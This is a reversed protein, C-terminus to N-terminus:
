FNSYLEHIMVAAFLLTILIVASLILMEVLGWGKNNNLIKRM